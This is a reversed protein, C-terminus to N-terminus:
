TMFAHVFCRFLLEAEGRFHHNVDVNETEDETKTVLTKFMEMDQLHAPNM